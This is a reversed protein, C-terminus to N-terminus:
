KGVEGIMEKVNQAIDAASLRDPSILGELAIAHDWLAQKLHPELAIWLDDPTALKEKQTM